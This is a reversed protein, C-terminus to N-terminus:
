KPVAGVTGLTQDTWYVWDDDIVLYVPSNLGSVLIENPRIGTGALPTRGIVGHQADPWYIYSDDVALSSIIRGTNIDGGGIPEQSGTGDLRIRSISGDYSEAWYVYTADVAIANPVTPSFLTNLATGGDGIAQKVLRENTGEDAWFLQNAWYTLHRPRLSADSALTVPPMSGALSQGQVSYGDSWFIEGAGLDFGVLGYPESVVPSPTGGDIRALAVVKYSTSWYVTTSSVRMTAAGDQGTAIVQMVSGPSLDIEFINSGDTWFLQNGDVALGFLQAAGTHLTLAGGDAPYTNGTPAAGGTTAGSTTTGGTTGGNTAVAGTTGSTGAGSSTSVGATTGATSTTAEGSTSSTGASTGLLSNGSQSACGYALFSM